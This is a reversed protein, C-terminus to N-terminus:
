HIRDTFSLKNKAGGVEIPGSEQGLSLSMREVVLSDCKKQLM